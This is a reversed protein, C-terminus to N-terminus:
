LSGTLLYEEKMPQQCLRPYICSSGLFILKKVELFRSAEIVNSAIMLNDYLFNAPNLVNAQIGGVKGAILFVYEPQTKEIFKTTINQDRLDLQDFEKTIIKRYGRYKLEKLLLSGIMGEHGAIYIKSNKNM